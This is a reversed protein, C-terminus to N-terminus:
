AAPRAEAEGARLSAAAGSARLVRGPDEQSGLRLPGHPNDQDVIGLVLRSHESSTAVPLNCTFM